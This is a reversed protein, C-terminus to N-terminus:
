PHSRLCQSPCHGFKAKFARSFYFPSAYGARQAIAAVTDRGMRLAAIAQYLRLDTHYAKPSCGMVETFAQRLWRASVGCTHALSEVCLPQALDIQMLSIAHFVLGRLRHPQEHVQIAWEHMLGAFLASAAAHAFIDPQALYSIMRTITEAEWSLPLVSLAINWPMEVIRGERAFEFWCYQWSSGRSRCTRLRHQETILLTAPALKVPPNDDLEVVGEGAFTRLVVLIDTSQPINSSAVAASGHEM